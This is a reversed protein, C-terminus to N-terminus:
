HVSRLSYKWFLNITGAASAHTNKATVESGDAPVLLRWNEGGVDGSSSDSADALFYSLVLNGVGGGPDVQNRIEWPGGAKGIGIQYHSAGDPKDLTETDGSNVTKPGSVGYMVSKSHDIQIGEAVSRATIHVVTETGGGGSLFDTFGIDLSPYPVFLQGGAEVMWGNFELGVSNNEWADRCTMQASIMSGAPLEVRFSLLWGACSPENGIFSLSSEDGNTPVSVAYKRVRVDGM